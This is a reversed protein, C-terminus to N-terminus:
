HPHKTLIEALRVVEAGTLGTATFKSGDVVVTASSRKMLFAAIGKAVAIAAGSDLIVGVISGLDQTDAKEKKREVKKASGCLAIELESALKNANAATEGLVQISVYHEM